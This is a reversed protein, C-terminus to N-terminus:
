ASQQDRIFRLSNMFVESFEFFALKKFRIDILAQDILQINISSGLKVLIDKKVQDLNGNRQAEILSKIQENIYKLKDVISKLNPFCTYITEKLCGALAAVNNKVAKLGPFLKGAAMVEESVKGSIETEKSNELLFQLGNMLDQDFETLEILKEGDIKCVQICDLNAQFIIMSYLVTYYLKRIQELAEKNDDNESLISRCTDRYQVLEKISSKLVRLM